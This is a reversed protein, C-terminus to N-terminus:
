NTMYIQIDYEIAIASEIRTRLSKMMKAIFQKADDSNWRVHLSFLSDMQM